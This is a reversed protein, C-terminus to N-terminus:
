GSDYKQNELRGGNGDSSVGNGPVGDGMIGSVGMLASDKDVTLSATPTAQLVLSVTARAALPGGMLAPRLSAHVLAGCSRSRAKQFIWPPLGSSCLAMYMTM